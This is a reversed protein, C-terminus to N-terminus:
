IRGLSLNTTIINHNHNLRVMFVPVIFYSFLSHESDTYQLRACKNIIYFDDSTISSGKDDIRATNVAFSFDTPVVINMVPTKLDNEVDYSGEQASVFSLSMSSVLAFATVLSLVKKKM